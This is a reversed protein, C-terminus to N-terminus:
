FRGLDLLRYSGAVTEEFESISTDDVMCVFDLTDVASVSITADPRRPSNKAPM